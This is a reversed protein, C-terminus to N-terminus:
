PNEGLFFFAYDIEFSQIGGVVRKLLSSMLMNYIDQPPYLGLPNSPEIPSNTPLKDLFDSPAEPRYRVVLNNNAQNRAQWIQLDQMEFSSIMGLQEHLYM